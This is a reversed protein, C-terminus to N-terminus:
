PNDKDKELFTFRISDSIDQLLGIQSIANKFSIRNNSNEQDTTKCRWLIVLLVFFICYKLKLNFLRMM